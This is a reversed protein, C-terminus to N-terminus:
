AARIASTGRRSSAPAVSMTGPRAEASTAACPPLSYPESASSSASSETSTTTFRVGADECTATVRAASSARLSTCVSFGTASVPWSARSSARSASSRATRRLQAGAVSSPSDCCVARGRCRSPTVAGRDPPHPRALCAAGYSHRVRPARPPRRRPPRRSPPRLPRPRLRRRTGADPAAPSPATARTSSRADAPGSM